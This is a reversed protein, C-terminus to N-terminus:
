VDTASAILAELELLRTKAARVKSFTSELAESINAKEARPSVRLEGLAKELEAEADAIERMAPGLKTLLLEKKM